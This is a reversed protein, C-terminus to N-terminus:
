KRLESYFFDFDDEEVRKVYNELNNYIRRESFCSLAEEGFKSEIYHMVAYKEKYKKDFSSLEKM